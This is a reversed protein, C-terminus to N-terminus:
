IISGENTGYVAERGKGRIRKAVEAGFASCKVPSVGEMQRALDHTVTGARITERVADELAVCARDLGIYKFMM